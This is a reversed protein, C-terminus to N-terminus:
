KKLLRYPVTSYKKGMVQYIKRADQNGSSPIVYRNEQPDKLITIQVRTLAKRIAAPSLKKYQHRVRYEVHRTCSFDIFAIAIHARIRRPTWHFIPRIKLDHKTVRFSEEVQWLGRYYSFLDQPSLDKSNTLIGHLGDWVAEKSLAEEDLSVQSTGEFKLFKKYGYNSIFNAPKGNKKLKAIIKNIAQQRDHSNKRARKECYSV